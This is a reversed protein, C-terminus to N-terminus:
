DLLRSDTPNDQDTSQDMPALILISHHTPAPGHAFPVQAPVARLAFGGTIQCQACVRGDKGHNFCPLDDCAADMRIKKAFWRQPKRASTPLYGDFEGMGCECCLTPDGM